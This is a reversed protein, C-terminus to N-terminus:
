YYHSHPTRSNRGRKDRQWELPIPLYVGVAGSVRCGIQTQSPMTLFMTLWPLLITSPSILADRPVLSCPSRMVLSFNLEFLGHCISGLFQCVVVKVGMGQMRIDRRVPRHYRVLTTLHQQTM